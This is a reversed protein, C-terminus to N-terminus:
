AAVQKETRRPRCIAALTHTVRSFGDKLKSGQKSAERALDNMSLIGVPREHADVVPIRRIQHEAMMMEAVAIEQDPRVSYVQTSMAQEVSIEALRQGRSWASMCIDRDTLMGVLRGNATIVALAGCDNDWLRKAAVDLHEDDQISVVPSTMLQASTM